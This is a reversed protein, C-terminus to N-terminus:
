LFKVVEKINEVDTMNYIVMAIGGGNKVDELFVKQEASLKDKGNKIEVALFRGTSRQFGIIDSIGKKTTNARYINRKADFTPINNNRWAEFGNLHLVRLTANTLGATTIKPLAAKKPKGNCKPPEAWAKITTTRLGRVEDFPNTTLYKDLGKM